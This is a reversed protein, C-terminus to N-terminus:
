LADVGEPVENEKAQIQSKSMQTIVLEEGANLGSKVEVYLHDYLGTIIEKEQTKKDAITKVWKRGNKESVATIPVILVNEASQIDIENQTTMGIRFKGDANEYEVRAYYYIAQKEGVVGSYQDNTLITLSPDISKLPAEYVADESLVSFKVKQGEKIKLIDGESIEILIEIKSLDAIQAITPANQLANLTQGVKVPLSVITGDLPATITTYTLNKKASELSIETQKVLSAGEAVKAKASEYENETVEVEQESIARNKLLTKSREYKSSAIKM